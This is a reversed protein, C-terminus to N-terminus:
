ALVILEGAIIDVPTIPLDRIIEQEVTNIMWPSCYNYKKLTFSNKTLIPVWQVTEDGTKFLVDHSMCLQVTAADGCSEIHLNSIVTFVKIISGTLKTLRSAQDIVGVIKEENNVRSFEVNSSYLNSELMSTELNESQWFTDFTKAYDSLFNQIQHIDESKNCFKCM